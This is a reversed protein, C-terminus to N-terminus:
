PVCCPGNPGFIKIGFPGPTVAAGPQNGQGAAARESRAQKDFLSATVLYHRKEPRNLRVDAVGESIEVTIRHETM